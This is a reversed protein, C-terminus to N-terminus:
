VFRNKVLYISKGCFVCPTRTYSCVSWSFVNRKDVWGCVGYMHIILSVLSKSSFMHNPRAIAATRRGYDRIYTNHSIYGCIIITYTHEWEKFLAPKLGISSSM